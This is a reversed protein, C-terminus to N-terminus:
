RVPVGGIAFYPGPCEATSNGRSTRPPQDAAFHKGGLDLREGVRAAVRGFSDLVVIEGRETAARFGRPWVIVYSEGTGRRVRLCGDREVLEGSLPVQTSPGGPEEAEGTPLQIQTAPRPSVATARGRGPELSRDEETIVAVHEPLRMGSEPLVDDFQDRDVIPIEVRNASTHINAIVERDLQDRLRDLLRLTEERSTLLEAHTAAVRRVEVIGEYPEGEIYPRITEEGDRTFAVILRFEPQHQWWLGAFTDREAAELKEGLGGLTGMTLLRRRAEEVSVGIEGAYDRAGIALAEEDM